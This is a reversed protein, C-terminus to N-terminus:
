PLGDTATERRGGQDSPTVQHVQELRVGV